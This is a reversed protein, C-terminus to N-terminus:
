GGLPLMAFYTVMPLLEPLEATRGTEIRLYIATYVGGIMADLVDEPVDPLGEASATFLQRLRRLYTIRARRVRPGAANVEVIAVQAFLPEAALVRLVARLADELGGRWDPAAEFAEAMLVLLQRAGRQYVVLFCEELTGFHDYFTKKTVGAADTVKAITTQGFGQEAVVQVFADILRERQIHAVQEPPLGHRGPKIARSADRAARSGPLVLAAADPWDRSRASVM